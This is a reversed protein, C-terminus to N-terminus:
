GSSTIVTQFAQERATAEARRGDVRGNEDIQAIVTVDHLRAASRQREGEV